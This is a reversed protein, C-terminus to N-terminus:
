TLRKRLDCGGGRYEYQSRLRLGSKFNDQDYNLDSDDNFVQQRNMDGLNSIKAFYGKKSTDAKLEYYEFM